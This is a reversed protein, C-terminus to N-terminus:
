VQTSSPPAFSSLIDLPLQWQNLWQSAQPLKLIGRHYLICIKAAINTQAMLINLPRDLDSRKYPDTDLAHILETPLHWDRACQYSLERNYDRFLQYCLVEMYPQQDPRRLLCFKLFNECILVGSFQCAMLFCLQYSSVQKDASLRKALLIVFNAFQWLKQNLAPAIHRIAQFSPKLMPLLLRCSHMNLQQGSLKVATAQSISLNQHQELEPQLDICDNILTLRQGRSLKLQLLQFGMTPWPPLYLKRAQNSRVLLKADQYISYQWQSTKDSPQPRDAFLHQTFLKDIADALQERTRSVFDPPLNPAKNRTEPRQSLPSKNSFQQTLNETM